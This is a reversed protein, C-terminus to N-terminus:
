FEPLFGQQELYNIIKHANEEPTVDHTTLRLEPNVPAEYPDDVGTFGKLEGARAKAYLGKVDRQECLEIPTDVFVEIFNEGVLKRSEERTSSYPSIAATIVAGGHRAIESAVYGIRLINTDRDERSFGLGKSLHTRVVDGDLVTAQRGRELLLTTLIEAITSKGAGSLGTFWVCFGQKHRPPYVQSLIDSTEPRTFWPPLQKGKALYNDRVQTGSITLVQAGEPINDEEVYTDRDALYVLEKFPVMTVGIEASFREVLQQADYPGYFPKGQSDKGPGAHDRGVIFHTVGHNRRIIAHWLAERPGAMRMALPLLSLLTRSKDYYKEVLTHYIRVRSYYDVDGPKTLGVVPHLLFSGDVAEAARRTLEEHVRHLPNRTQFAVVKEHGLEALKERVLAPTLRLEAFDYHSPLNVVRLPGSVNYKGWRATEAVFPHKVDNTGLVALNEKERDVEYIEDVQMVALLNNRSDRLSVLQGQKAQALEAEGVPLTIPMPFVTGDALRMDNVVSLYDAQGMFRDVPTFGGTALLELDCVARPSLQLSPLLAAEQLLKEREQGELVLNVLQGTKGYPPILSVKKETM